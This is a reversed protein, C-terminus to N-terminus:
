SMLRHYYLTCKDFSSKNWKFGSVGDKGASFAKLQRGRNDFAKSPVENRKVIKEFKGKFYNIMKTSTDSFVKLERHRRKM